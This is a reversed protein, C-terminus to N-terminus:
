QGTPYILYWARGSGVMNLGELEGESGVTGGREKRERAQADTDVEELGGPPSGHMQM